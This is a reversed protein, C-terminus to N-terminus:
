RFAGSPLGPSEARHAQLSSCFSNCYLCFRFSPLAHGNIADRDALVLGPGAFLQGLQAPIDKLGPSHLGLQAKEGCGVPQVGGPLAKLEVQQVYLHLAGVSELERAPEILAPHAVPDDEYRAARLVGQGPVADMGQVIQELGHVPLRQLLRQAPGPLPAPRAM